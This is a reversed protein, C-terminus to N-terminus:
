IRLLQIPNLRRLARSSVHIVIYGILIFLILFILTDSLSLEFPINTIYYEEPNQFKLFQFQNQLLIMVWASLTGYFSGVILYYAGLQSFIM